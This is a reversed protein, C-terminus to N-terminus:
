LAGFLWNGPAGADDSLYFDRACALIEDRTVHGDGDRDLHAFAEAADKDTIRYAAFFARLDGASLVGDRDQDFAEVLVAAMAGPVREFGGPESLLREHFAAHERQQVKGDGDADALRKLENWVAVYSAVLAAREPSGPQWGRAAAVNGAIIEYDSRDLVGNRDADIVHFLRAMKTKRLDTLM